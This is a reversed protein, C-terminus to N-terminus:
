AIWLKRLRRVTSIRPSTSLSRDGKGGNREIIERPVPVISVPRGMAAAFANVAEVHTLPETDAVNYAHGPAAPNELAALCANVLDNVFVFQMLRDGQGPVIVPRGLRIRDWFYAERYFPNEPGYVFPPRLTVAPFGSEGHLRFLARESAAKNRVYSEPHDDPALPGDERHNLGEGYAAVSSMFVYRSLDGPIAMTTAEVQQATTGREWDYAIDFVADFRCGALASRVAAADNRDAIANRVRPGFPHEAKRHLITVEHGREVLRTVLLKGIFLTGGIVLIRM